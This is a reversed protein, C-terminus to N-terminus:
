SKTEKNEAADENAEANSNPPKEPPDIPIIQYGPFERGDALLMEKVRQVLPKEYYHYDIEPQESEPRDLESWNPEAGGRSKGFESPNRRELVRMALKANPARFEQKTQFCPRGQENRVMQGTVSDIEPILHGEKDRLPVQFFGGIIARKLSETAAHKLLVRAYMADLYFKRLRPSQGAKGQKLWGMLTNM